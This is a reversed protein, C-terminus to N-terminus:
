PRAHAHAVERLSAPGGSDRQIPLLSGRQGILEAVSSNGVTRQLKLLQASTLDREDAFDHQGSEQAKIEGHRHSDNRRAKLPEEEDSGHVLKM